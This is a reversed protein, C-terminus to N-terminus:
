DYWIGWKKPARPGNSLGGVVGNSVIKAVYVATSDGSERYIYKKDTHDYYLAGNGVNYIKQLKHKAVTKASKRSGNSIVVFKGNPAKFAREGNSGVYVTKVADDLSYESAFVPASAGLLSIAVVSSTIIKKTKM